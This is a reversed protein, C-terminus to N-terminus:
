CGRRRIQKVKATTDPAPSPARTSGDDDPSASAGRSSHDDFRKDVVHPMGGFYRSVASARQFAARAAPPADAAITPSMVEDLWEGVGGRLFYVHRYGLAQLFVWGQAAHTGGDSLLVITEDSRFPTSSLSELDVRESTPLHYTEFESASRLDIVRLGPKRDRIWEALEVATVHDEEHAVAAAARAVDLTAHRVLYPSGGFAALLGCAGATVALFRRYSMTM